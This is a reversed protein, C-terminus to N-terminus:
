AAAGLVTHSILVWSTKEKQWVSVRHQPAAPLPQGDISGRLVVTYSVVFTNGNMETTVDGLSAEQIQLKEIQALAADRDLRGAPTVYVFNLAVCSNIAKWHKQEVAHWFAREASEGGTADSFVRAERYPYVSCAPSTCLSVAFLVAALLRRM